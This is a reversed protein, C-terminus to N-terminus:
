HARGWGKCEEGQDCEMKKYKVGESYEDTNLDNITNIIQRGVM